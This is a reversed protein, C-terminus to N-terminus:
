PAGVVAEEEEGAVAALETRAAIRTFRLSEEGWRELIEAARASATYRLHRELLGERSRELQALPHAREIRVLDRLHVRLSKFLCEPFPRRQM